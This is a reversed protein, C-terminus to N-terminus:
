KREFYVGKWKTNLLAKKNQGGIAFFVSGLFQGGVTGDLRCFSIRGARLFMLDSKSALLQFWRTDTRPFVLAVGNGHEVFRKVFPLIKGVSYPPNMWVRGHWPQVLGDDLETYEKDAHHWPQGIAACPDLDFRGLSRTVEKPTLWTDTKGGKLYFKKTNEISRM